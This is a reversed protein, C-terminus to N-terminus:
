RLAALPLEYSHGLGGKGSVIRHNRVDAMPLSGLIGIFHRCGCRGTACADMLGDERASLDAAKLRPWSPCRRCLSVSVIDARADTSIWTFKTKAPDIVAVVTKIEVTPRTEFIDPEGTQGTATVTFAPTLSLHRVHREAAEGCMGWVSQESPTIWDSTERPSRRQRRERTVDWARAIVAVPLELM